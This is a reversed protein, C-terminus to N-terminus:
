GPPRINDLGCFPRLVEPVLFSGDSQQCHEMLFVLTRGVACATGNLTHVLATGEEAKQRVKLRRASYDTYNSTSTLERYRGESPLWVECDYKKAAAAGLDGTAVDIVRYPLDLEDLIEREIALLVELEDWSKAPDCFSFMEVKDFQHVRFIGRTDKGYTGAERRFCSSFGGYRRPLESQEFRENRHLGALAVESTGILFLGDEALEYVQHRDTPFFGAEVMLEERVLVPTVVPTFGHGVLKTMAWQVLAFELLVAEGQLYAFRSGMNQSAKETEVWGMYEGYAAHDMPPAPPQGGVEEIVVFDDEDGVPSSSAAPNPIQLALEETAEAISALEAERTQLVSKLEGAEAIKAERDAPDSKGIAKSASNAQGRLNEVELQVERRQEDQDLLQTVMEATTGKNLAGQRYSEDDRLRKLDIM